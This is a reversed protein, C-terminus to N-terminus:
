NKIFQKNLLLKLVMAVLYGALISEAFLKIYMGALKMKEPDRLFGNSQSIVVWSLWLLILLPLFVRSYKKFLMDGRRSAEFAPATFIFALFILAFLNMIKQGKAGTTMGFTNYFFTGLYSHLSYTYELFLFALALVWTFYKKERTTLTILAITMAMIMWKVQSFKELSYGNGALAPLETSSFVQQSNKLNLTILVLDVALLLIPPLFYKIKELSNM